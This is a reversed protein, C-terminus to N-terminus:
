TCDWRLHFTLLCVVAFAIVQLRIATRLGWYINLLGEVVFEGKKNQRKTLKEPEGDFYTNYDNLRSM